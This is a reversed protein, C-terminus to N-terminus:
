KSHKRRKNNAKIYDKALQIAEKETYAARTSIFTGDISIVYRKDQADSQSVEIVHNYYATQM